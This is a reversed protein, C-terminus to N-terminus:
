ERSPTTIRVKIKSEKYIHMIQFLDSQKVLKKCSASKCVKMFIGDTTKVHFGRERRRRCIPCTFYKSQKM